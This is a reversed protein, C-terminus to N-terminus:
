VWAHLPWLITSFLWWYSELLYRELANGRPLIEWLVNQYPQRATFSGPDVQKKGMEVSRNYAYVGKIYTSPNWVLPKQWAQVTLNGVRLAM